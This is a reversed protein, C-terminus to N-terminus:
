DRRVMMYPMFPSSHFNHSAEKPSPVKKKSVGECSDLLQNSFDNEQLEHVLKMLDRRKYHFNTKARLGLNKIAFKDYLKAATM